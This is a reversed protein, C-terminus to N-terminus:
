EVDRCICYEIILGWIVPGVHKAIHSHEINETALGIHEMNNYRSMLFNGVLSREWDKLHYIGFDYVYLADANYLLQREKAYKNKDYPNLHQIMDHFTTVKIRTGPKCSNMGAFIFDTLVEKAKEKSERNSVLLINTFPNDRDKRNELDQYRLPVGAENLSDQTIHRTSQVKALWEGSIELQKQEM